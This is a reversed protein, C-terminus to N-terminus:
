GLDSSNEGSLYVNINSKTKSFQFYATNNLGKCEAQINSPSDCNSNWLESFTRESAKTTMSSLSQLSSCVWAPSADVYHEYLIKTMSNLM